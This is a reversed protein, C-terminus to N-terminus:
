GIIRLKQVAAISGSAVKTKAPFLTWRGFPALNLTM